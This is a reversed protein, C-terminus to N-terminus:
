VLKGKITEIIKEMKDRRFSEFTGVYRGSSIEQQFWVYLVSKLRQSPTKEDLEAKETPIDNENVEDLNPAFLLWGECNRNGLIMMYEEATLERSDFSLSCSGDKRIRPPNIQAPLLLKSM